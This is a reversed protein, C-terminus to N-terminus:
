AWRTFGQVQALMRFSKLWLIGGAGVLAFFGMWLHFPIAAPLSRVLNIIIEGVVDLFLFWDGVQSITGLITQPFIQFHLLFAFAFLEYAVVASGCVLAALFFTHQKELQKRQRERREEWRKVFGPPPAVPPTTILFKEIKPWSKNLAYCQDCKQLHQRLIKKDEEPIPDKEFIWTEITTHPM